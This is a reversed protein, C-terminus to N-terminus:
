NFVPEVKEKSKTPEHKRKIAAAYDLDYESSVVRNSKGLSFTM